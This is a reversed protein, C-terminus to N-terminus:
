PHSIAERNPLSSRLEVQPLARRGLHRELRRVALLGFGLGCLAAVITLGEGGGLGAALISAVLLGCLPLLYFLLSLRVLLKGDMVLSLSDGPRLGHLPPLQFPARREAHLNDLLRHGCSKR